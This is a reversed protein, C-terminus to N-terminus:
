LNPVDQKDSRFRALNKSHLHLNFLPRPKNENYAIYPRTISKENKWTIKFDAPNYAASENIFGDTSTKDQAYRMDLGGLYQGFSAADFLFNLNEFEEYYPLNTAVKEGKQNHLEGKGEVYEPPIVPLSICKNKNKNWYHAMSVMDNSQLPNKYPLMTYHINYFTCFHRIAAVSPIYMVSPICRNDFDIILGLKQTNILYESISSIDEYILNDTEFHLINTEKTTRLFDEIVFFREIVYRWFGDRWTSYANRNLTKFIIHNISTKLSSTLIIRLNSYKIKLKQLEDFDSDVICFLLSKTNCLFFQDISDTIHEQYTKGLHVILANM